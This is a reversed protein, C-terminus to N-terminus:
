WFYYAETFISSDPIGRSLLQKRVDTIMANAGCLYYDARDNLTLTPLLDTVRGHFDTGTERSVCPHYARCSAQLLDREYLESALRAGHLVTLDLSPHSRLFSLCPAIGTGTAIFWAPRAPDRLVFSGFPGTFHLIDGTKLAALRPSMLGDPVVRFLISLFPDNEGHLLSYVRDQTHDEGHVQIEEGAKFAVGHREFRLEISGPCHEIRDIIAASRRVPPQTM